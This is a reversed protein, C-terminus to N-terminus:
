RQEKDQEMSEKRWAVSSILVQQRWYKRLNEQIIDGYGSCGRTWVIAAKKKAGPCIGKVFLAFPPDPIEAAGLINKQFFHFLNSEM